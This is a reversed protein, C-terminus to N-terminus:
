RNMVVLFLAAAALVTAVAACQVSLEADVSKQVLGYLLMAIGGAFGGVLNLAGTVLGFNRGATLDYAGAYLNAIFLGGFFGFLASCAQTLPLTGATIAMCGFPAAILLGLAGVQTRGGVGTKAVIDGMVGGILVGIASGAQLFVTGSVGSQTLSLGFRAHVSAAMWALLIWLMGCFACFAAALAIWEKSRLTNLPASVTSLDRIQGQAPDRLTINLVVAYCFGMVALSYFGLRWGIHDAAWGGYWGGLAVGAFQGTSFTALARSRTVDRHHSVILGLAAPVFLSETIGMAARFFLLVIASRSAATGITALSWLVMSLVVIRNRPFLDALRGAVPMSVCYAWLFTTGIFALQANSFYLERQLVPFISFIVQRDVYNVLFALWLLGVILWNPRTHLSAQGSSRVSTFEPLWNRSIM